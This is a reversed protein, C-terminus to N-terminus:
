SPVGQCVVEQADILIASYVRFCVLGDILPNRDQGLIAGIAAAGFLLIGM